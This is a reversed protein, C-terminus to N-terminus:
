LRHETLQSKGLFPKLSAFLCRKVGLIISDTYMDKMEGSRVGARERRKWLLCFSVFIFGFLFM